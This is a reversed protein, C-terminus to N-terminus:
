AADEEEDDSAADASDLAISSAYEQIAEFNEFDTTSSATMKLHGEENNVIIESRQNDAIDVEVSTENVGKNKSMFEESATISAMAAAETLESNYKMSTAFQKPTVGTPLNDEVVKRNIVSLGNEDFDIESELTKVLGDVSKSIKM